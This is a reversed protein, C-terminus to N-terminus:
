RKIFFSHRYFIIFHEVGGLAVMTNLGEFSYLYFTLVVLKLRGLGRKYWVITVGSPACCYHKAGASGNASQLTVIINYAQVFTGCQIGIKGV